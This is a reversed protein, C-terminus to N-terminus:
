SVATGASIFSFFPGYSPLVTPCHSQLVTPGPRPM